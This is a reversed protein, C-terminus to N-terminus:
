YSINGEYTIKNTPSSLNAITHGTFTGSADEFRGTGGAINHTMVVTRTGDPNPAALGTFSTYFVDGNAAYFTATGDLHFPPPTTLNLTSIAIFKGEGLHSSQGVGTVRQRLMPPPNLLENTTIYTGKIPVMKAEENMQLTASVTGTEPVTAIEKKCSLLLSMSAFVCLFLGQLQHKM